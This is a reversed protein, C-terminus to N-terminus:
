SSASNPLSRFSEFIVRVGGGGVAQGAGRTMMEKQLVHERGEERCSRM